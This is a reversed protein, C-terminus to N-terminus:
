SSSKLDPSAVHDPVGELRVTVPRGAATIPTGGARAEGVRDIRVLALGRAGSVSGIQGVPLSGAFLETGSAPPDAAFFVAEVRKRATGRHQMRSVVEQGVYCGKRFDVGNLRDFNAEHPFADGYAFDIGGEPVGAEIRHADADGPDAAVGAVIAGPGIAREGLAASRPDAYVLLGTDTPALPQALPAAGLERSLDTVHVKARLKYMTLRRALDAALHGPCDLLFREPEDPTPASVVIFDVLIKGQPTLLAAYRAEGPLLGEVDNTVLNQLLTRADFGAVKVVGRTRHSTSDTM